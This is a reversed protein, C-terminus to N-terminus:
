GSNELSTSKDSYGKCRGKGFKVTECWAMINPPLEVFVGLLVPIKGVVVVYYIKMPLASVFSTSGNCM